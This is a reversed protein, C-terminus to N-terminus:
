KRIIPIKKKGQILVNALNDLCVDLRDMDQLCLLFPTDTPVIHFQIRGLPTQVNITGSSFTTGKGFTVQQGGTSLQCLIADPIQTCLAKVQSEGVISIGAVRSDPMIGQFANALYRGGVTFVDYPNVFVDLRTM